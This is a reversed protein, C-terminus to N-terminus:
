PEATTGDFGGQFLPWTSRAVALGDQDSQGAVHVSTKGVFYVHDPGPAGYWFADDAHAYEYVGFAGFSADRDGNGRLLVSVSGLSDASTGGILVGGDATVELIRGNSFMPLRVKGALGFGPDALGDRTLRVVGTITETPTLSVSGAALIRGGADVMMSAVVDNTDGGLDFHVFAWGDHNPGFTEDVDGEATLRVVSFDYGSGGPHISAGGILIRGDALPVVATALSVESGPPGMCVRGAGHGFSTIPAGTAGDFKAVASCAALPQPKYAVGVAVLSDGQPAADGFGAHSADTMFASAGVVVKGDEDFDVDRRGLSTIRGIMASPGSTGVFAVAGTDLVVNRAIRDANVDLDLDLRGSGTPGFTTDMRGDPLLRMYVHLRTTQPGSQTIYGSLTVRGDPSAEIDFPIFQTGTAGVAEPIPIRLVGDPAGAYTPDPTPAATASAICAGTSALAFALRCISERMWAPAAGVAAPAQADHM